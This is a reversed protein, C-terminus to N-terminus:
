QSPALRTVHGPRGRHCARLVRKTETLLFLLDDLTIARAHMTALRVPYLRQLSERIDERRLFVPKFVDQWNDNRDIIKLYDTFDAYDILPQVKGGAKVATEHRQHWEELMNAPLKQKMWKEGYADQMADVIFARMVMEFRLLREFALRSRTLEDSDQPYSDEAWDSDIEYLRAIVSSRGFAEPTFDTLAQDFGREVYFETRATADVCVEPAMTVTDRWDGLGTRLWAGVANAFPPASHVIDGIAQLHAFAASSHTQNTVSLWPREIAEMRSALSALGSVDGFAYSALRDSRVAECALNVFEEHGPLRFLSERAKIQRLVDGVHSGASLKGLHATSAGFVAKKIGISQELAIAALSGATVAGFRETLGSLSSLKGNSWQEYANESTSLGHLAERLDRPLVDDLQFSLRKAKAIEDSVENFMNMNRGISTLSGYESGGIKGTLPELLKHRDEIEKLRMMEGVQAVTTLGLSTRVDALPDALRRLTEQQELMRRLSENM